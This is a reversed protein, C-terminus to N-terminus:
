RQEEEVPAGPAGEALVSLPAPVLPPRITLGTMGRLFGLAAGCVRGQCAGMGARTHLKAARADLAAPDAPSGIAEPPLGDVAAMTVDECRCVITNPRTLGRLEARPAFARALREAFEAERARERLLRAPVARGVAALGATAGSALAHGLGGIATLEGAAFVGPRSTQQAEDVVVRAGDVSCGLLRPLELNAVLGFGCALLDCAWERERRGDTVIVREVGERGLAEKVWSGPLYRVGALRLGYGLAEVVKGPRGALGAGFAALRALPAQEVIGVVVAGAARLAAAVPLLLPGSGSVVARRGAFSAGAKVLAQAGGAGVVGPRTWGPFPLFLERAGTALVLQRWVVRAPVVGRDLLLEGPAPADVVSAGAVVSGGARALRALWPAAAPV